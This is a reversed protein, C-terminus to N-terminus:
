AQQHQAMAAFQALKFNIKFVTQENLLQQAQPKCNNQAMCSTIWVEFAKLKFRAGSQSLEKYQVAPLDPSVRIRLRRM